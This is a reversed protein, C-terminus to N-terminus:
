PRRSETPAFPAPPAAGFPRARPLPVSRAADRAPASAMESHVAGDVNWRCLRYGGGHEALDVHVHIEHYGDSGPGLVTTFRACAAAKMDLRFQESADDTPHLIRGDAFRLSRIDLANARGHESLKAGAVRNRGRCDYSDYNELASLVAGMASVASVLDSRVFDAVALAMECRLTAPPEIAIAIRDAVSIRALLVIDGGGCGGPGFLQGRPTFVTREASLRLQCATPALIEPLEAPAPRGADPPPANGAKAPRPQPVPVLQAGADEGWGAAVVAFGIAAVIMKHKMSNGDSLPHAGLIRESHL